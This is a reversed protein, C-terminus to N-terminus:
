ARRAESQAEETRGLRVFARGLYEPPVQEVAQFAAFALVSAALVPDADLAGPERFTLFERRARTM